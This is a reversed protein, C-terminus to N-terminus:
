MVRQLCKDNYDINSPCSAGSLQRILKTTNILEDYKRWCGAKERSTCEATRLYFCSLNMRFHLRIFARSLREGGIVLSYFPPLPSSLPGDDHEDHELITFFFAREKRSIIFFFIFLFSLFSPSLSEVVNRNRVSKDKTCNRNKCGCKGNRCHSKGRTDSISKM